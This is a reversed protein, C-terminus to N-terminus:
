SPEFSAERGWKAVSRPSNHIDNPGAGSELSTFLEEESSDLQALLNNVLSTTVSEDSEM